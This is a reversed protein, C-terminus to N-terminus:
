KWRSRMDHSGHSRVVAVLVDVADRFELFLGGISLEEVREVRGSRVRGSVVAVLISSVLHTFDHGTPIYLCNQIAAM